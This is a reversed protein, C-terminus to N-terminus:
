AAELDSIRPFVVESFGTLKEGLSIYLWPHRYSCIVSRGQQAAERTIRNRYENLQKPDSIAIRVCGSTRLSGWAINGFHTSM